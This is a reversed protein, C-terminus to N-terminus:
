TKGAFILVDSLATNALELTTFIKQNRDNRVHDGKLLNFIWSPLDSMPHVPPDFLNARDADCWHWEKPRTPMDLMWPSKDTVVIEKIPQTKLLNRLFQLDRGSGSCRDCTPDDVIIWPHNIKMGSGGCEACADSTILTALPAYVVELFGRRPICAMHGNRRETSNPPRFVVHGYQAFPFWKDTYTLWLDRERQLLKRHGCAWDWAPGEQSNCVECLALKCQVQIFEARAKEMESGDTDDGYLADAYAERQLDSDPSAIISALLSGLVSTDAM